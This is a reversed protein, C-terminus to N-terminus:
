SNAGTSGDIAKRNRFSRGDRLRAGLVSIVREVVQLVSTWMHLM